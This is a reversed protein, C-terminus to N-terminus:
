SLSEKAAFSHEFRDLGYGTFEPFDLLSSRRTHSVNYEYVADKHLYV